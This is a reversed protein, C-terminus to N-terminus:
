KSAYKFQPLAKLQERTGGAVVIRDESIKLTDYPLAVLHDGIGLFGGVSLVARPAFPTITLFAAAAVWALGFANKM